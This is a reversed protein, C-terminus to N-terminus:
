ILSSFIPKVNCIGVPMKTSVKKSLNSCVRRWRDKNFLGDWWSIQVQVEIFNKVPDKVVFNIGKVQYNTILDKIVFEHVQSPCSLVYLENKSRMLQSRNSFNTQVEFGGPSMPMISNNEFKITKNQNITINFLVFKENKM